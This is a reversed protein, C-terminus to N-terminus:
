DNRRRLSKHKDIINLVDNLDVVMFSKHEGDIEQFDFAADEIEARIKDLVEAGILNYLVETPQYKNRNESCSEDKCLAIFDPRAKEKILNNVVKTGMEHTYVPRGMISAVYEYFVSLKDGALMCYGTYAMVIAKERDTM